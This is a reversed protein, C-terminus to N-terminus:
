KTNNMKNVTTGLNKIASAKEPDQLEYADIPKLLQKALEKNFIKVFATHTYKYKPTTRRISVNHKKLLKIM